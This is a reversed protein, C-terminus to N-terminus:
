VGAHPVLAILEMEVLLEPWCLIAQIGTSAPLPDLGIETFFLTRIQNFLAYDREIDRLYCTTRVVDHWTAKESVLLETLNRYTRLCQAAFDGPHAAKGEENVSATGSLFLFTAEGPEVRMGRSFSSPRTYSHAENIVVPAHIASKRVALANKPRDLGRVPRERSWSPGSLGLTKLEGLAAPSFTSWIESVRKSGITQDKV